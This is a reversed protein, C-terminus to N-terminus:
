GNGDEDGLLEDWTCGFADRLKRLKRLTPEHSGYLYNNITNVCIGSRVALERATWRNRRMMRMMNSALLRTVQGGGECRLQPM